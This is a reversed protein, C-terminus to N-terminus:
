EETPPGNGAPDSVLEAAVPSATVPTLDRVESRGVTRNFTGISGALLLGTATLYGSCGVVYAIMFSEPASTAGEDLMVGVWYPAFALFAPWPTLTMAAVLEGDAGSGGLALPGLLCGCCLYYGGGLFLSVGLTLGLARTSNPSRLSFAVGLASFFAVLIVASAVILPVGLWFMPTALGCLLWLFGLLPIMWRGAYLTGWFKALVIESAELPTALLGTWTDREKESTISTAGRAAFLLCSGLTVLTGIVAIVGTFSSDAGNSSRNDLFVMFSYLATGVIVCLAAGMVIRGIWGLRSQVRETFMEKWLMPSGQSVGRRSRLRRLISRRSVAVSGPLLEDGAASDVKVAGRGAARLHVRRVAWPALVACIATLIAQIGVLRGVLGWPGGAIRVTVGGSFDQSVIATIAFYPNGAALASLIWQISQLLYGALGPPPTAFLLGALLAGVIVPLVSLGFLCLYTRLVADRARPCWVSVTISLATVSVATSATVAFVALMRDYAIGGLLRAIALIPLSVLLLAFIRLLAAAFKGYVIEINSLDTAFLYEITRRERETAIAGATFAPALLMVATIQLMAFSTFFAAALAATSQITPADGEWNPAYCLGLVLLVLLAYGTRVWYYRARRGSTVVDASFIPGFLM